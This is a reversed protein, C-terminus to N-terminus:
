STPAVRARAVRNNSHLFAQLPIAQDDGLYAGELKDDETRNMKVQSSKGESVRKRKLRLIPEIL